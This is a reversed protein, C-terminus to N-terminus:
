RRDHSFQIADVIDKTSNLVKVKPSGLFRTPWSLATDEVVSRMIFLWRGLRGCEAAQHLTGSTDSAEVIVTADSLAAMVRNRKPFSSKFTAEGMEFPSVLLHENYIWEQLSANEAPYAKELPTGIVAITRGGAQIVSQHAASDVGKALGSMVVIQAEALERALRTARIRGEVSVERTGVISVAPLGFLSTDGAVHIVKSSRLFDMQKADHFTRSGAALADELKMPAFQAPALYKRRKAPQGHFNIHMDVGLWTRSLRNASAFGLRIEGGRM